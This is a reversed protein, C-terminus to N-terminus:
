ETVPGSLEVVPVSHSFLASDVFLSDNFVVYVRYDTEPQVSDLYEVRIYYEEPATALHSAVWYGGTSFWDITKRVGSDYYYDSNYSIALLSSDAAKVAYTVKVPTFSDKKCSAMAPLILLVFLRPLCLGPRM